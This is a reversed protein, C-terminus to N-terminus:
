GFVDRGICDSERRQLTPIFIVSVRRAGFEVNRALVVLVKTKLSLALKQLCFDGRKLYTTTRLLVVVCVVVWRTPYATLRPKVGSKYSICGVNKM